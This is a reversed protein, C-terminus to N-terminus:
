CGHSCGCDLKHYKYHKLTDQYEKLTKPKEFAGCNDDCAVVKRHRKTSDDPRKAM